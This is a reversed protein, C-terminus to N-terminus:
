RWSLGTWDQDHHIFGALREAQRYLHRRLTGSFGPLAGRTFQLMRREYAELFAARGAKTLLVGPVGERRRGHEPRLEDRATMAAVVQDVILPRFEEMLDLALAPRRDAPVHFLGIEPELGAAALASTAEGALITYGLSLAANVVDLPPQRSRGAFTLGEPMLAGFAGFYARAAAGELGMTEEVTASQEVLPLLSEMLGTAERSLEADDRRGLRRMVVIQKRVKAEVVSRAWLLRRLPSDAV